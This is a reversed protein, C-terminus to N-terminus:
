ALVSEFAKITKDVSIDNVWYHTVLRFRRANEADLLVGFKLMRESVVQTDIKVDDALNFYVM